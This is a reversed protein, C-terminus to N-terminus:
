RILRGWLSKIRINATSKGFVYCDEFCASELQQATIRGANHEDILAQLYLYYHVDAMMPVERGKDTRLCNPCGNARIAVLYQRLVSVATTNLSGVFFWIIKRSYADVCGYIKIGLRKLKGHGDLCWLWNPGDVM